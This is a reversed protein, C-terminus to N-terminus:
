EGERAAALMATWGREVSGSPDAWFIAREGAEVMAPSPPDLAAIVARCRERLIWDCCEAHNGAFVHEKTRRDIVHRAGAPMGWPVHYWRSDNDKMARAARDLPGTM